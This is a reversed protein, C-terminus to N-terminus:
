GNFRYSRPSLLYIPLLIELRGLLMGGSLVLKVAWPLAMIGEPGSFRGFAMGTNSVAASCLSLVEMFGSEFLLTVAMMLGLIVLLYLFYMNAMELANDSYSGEGRKLPLEARPHTMNKVLRIFGKSLLVLRHVKLGSALSLSSGGLLMLLVLFLKLSDPWEQMGDVQFGTDSLASIAGFAGKWLSEGFGIGGAMLMLYALVPATVSIMMYAVNETDLLARRRGKSAILSLHVYFGIGAIFMMLTTIIHIGSGGPVSRGVSSYGGTSLASMALCISDYLHLGSFRYIAIGFLTLGAYAFAINRMLNSMTPVMGTWSFMRKEVSRRAIDAIETLLLFSFGLYIIGGAWQIAVRYFLMGRGAELFTSSAKTSLGTTTFGAISEFLADMVGCTGSLVFPLSGVLIMLLFSVIAVRYRKERSLLPGVPLFAIFIVQSVFMILVPVGFVVLDRVSFHRYLLEVSLSLMLMASLVLQMQGLVTVPRIRVM